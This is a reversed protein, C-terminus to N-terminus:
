DVTISDFIDSLNGLRLSALLIVDFGLDVLLDRAYLFGVLRSKEHRYFNVNLTTPESFVEQGINGASTGYDEKELSTCGYIRDRKDM